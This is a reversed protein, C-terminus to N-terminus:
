RQSWAGAFGPLEVYGSTPGLSDTSVDGGSAHPNWQTALDTYQWRVLVAEAAQDKLPLGEDILRAGSQLHALVPFSHFLFLSPFLM